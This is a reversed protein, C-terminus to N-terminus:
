FWFNEENRQLQQPRSMRTRGLVDIKLLHGSEAGPIGAGDSHNTTTM